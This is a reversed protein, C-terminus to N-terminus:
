PLRTCPGVERTLDEIQRDSSKQLAMEKEKVKQKYEAFEKLVQKKEEEFQARAQQFLFVYV